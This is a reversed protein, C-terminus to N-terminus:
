KEIQKEIYEAALWVADSREHFNKASAKAFNPDIKRGGHIGTRQAEIYGDRIESLDHADNQLQNIAWKVGAIFDSNHKDTEVSRAAARLCESVPKSRDHQFHSMVPQDNIQVTYECVGNGRGGINKIILPM